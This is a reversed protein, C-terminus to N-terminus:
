NSKRGTQIKWGFKKAMERVYRKQAALDKRPDSRYRRRPKDVVEAEVVKVRVEDGVRLSSRRWRVHEDRPVILGSVHLSVDDRGDGVVHDVFVTLV